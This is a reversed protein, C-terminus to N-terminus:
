PWPRHTASRESAGVSARTDFAPPWWPLCQGTAARGIGSSTGAVIATKGGLPQHVTRKLLGFSCRSFSKPYRLPHGIAETLMVCSTVPRRM